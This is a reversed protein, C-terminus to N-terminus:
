FTIVKYDKQLYESLPKGMYKVEIGIELLKDSVKYMDACAKCAYVKIGVEKMKRIYDQLDTDESLLKSSPGWIIFNIEDWWGFKAANYAYMFVMKEAVEKDASTWVIALKNNQNMKISSSQSQKNKASCNVFSNTSFFVTLVFVLLIKNM